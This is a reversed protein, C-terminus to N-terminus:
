GNSVYIPFCKFVCVCMEVRQVPLCNEREKLKCLVGVGQELRLISDEPPLQLASERPCISGGKRM